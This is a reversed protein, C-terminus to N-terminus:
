RSWRRSFAAVVRGGPVHVRNCADVLRVRHEYSGRVLRARFRHSWRALDGDRATSQALPWLPSTCSRYEMRRRSECWYVCRGGGRRMLSVRVRCRGFLRRVRGAARAAAAPWAAVAAAVLIPAILPRM